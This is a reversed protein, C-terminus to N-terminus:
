FSKILDKPLCFQYVREGYLTDFGASQHPVHLSFELLQQNSALSMVAMQAWPIVDKTMEDRGKGHKKHLQSEIQPRFISAWPQSFLPPPFASTKTHRRVLFCDVRV